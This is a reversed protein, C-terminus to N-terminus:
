LKYIVNFIQKIYHKNPYNNKIRTFTTNILNNESELKNYKYCMDKFLTYNKERQALLSLIQNDIENISHIIEEFLENQLEIFNPQEEEIIEM